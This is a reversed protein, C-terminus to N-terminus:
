VAPLPPADTLGRAASFAVAAFVANSGDFWRTGISIAPPSQVGRAVLGRSTADLRHDLSKDNAAQVADSTTLGAVAAAEM